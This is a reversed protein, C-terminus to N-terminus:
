ENVRIYTDASIGENITFEKETEVSGAALVPRTGWAIVLEDFPNVTLVARSTMPVESDVPVPELTYIYQGSANDYSQTLVPAYESIIANLETDAWYTFIDSEDVHGYPATRYYGDASYSTRWSMAGENDDPLLRQEEYRFTGLGGSGPEGLTLFARFDAAVASSADVVVYQWKGALKGSSTQPCGPLLCLSVCLAMVLVAVRAQKM